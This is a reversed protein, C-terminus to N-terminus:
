ASRRGLVRVWRSLVRADLAHVVGLLLLGVAAGVVADTIWHFDLSVMAVGALVPGGISLLRFLQQVRPPLGFDVAQWRAVGWMLVANAVHGSPFSAGDRHFFSGPYSPATRGMGYKFGYVVATLLALAVLVRVLPLLTRRRWTLFGVLGALVILIFGRGGFQTVCWVPWYTAPSDKLDWSSVVESVRLDLRELRGRALLDATVVGTVALSAVLVWWPPRGVSVPADAPAAPEGTTVPTASRRRVAGSTVANV